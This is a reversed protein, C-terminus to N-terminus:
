DATNQDPSGRVAPVCQRGTLQLLVGDVGEMFLLRRHPIQFRLVDVELQEAGGCLITLGNGLEIDPRSASRGGQVSGVPRLSTGDFIGNQGHYVFGDNGRHIQLLYNPIRDGAISGQRARNKFDFRQIALACDKASGDGIGGTM